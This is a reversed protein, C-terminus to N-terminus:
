MCSNKWAGIGSVNRLYFFGRAELDSTEVDSSEALRLAGTVPSDHQM